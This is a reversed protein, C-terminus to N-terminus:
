PCELLKMEWFEELIFDEVNFANLLHETIFLIELALFTSSVVGFFVQVPCTDSPKLCMVHVGSLLDITRYQQVM